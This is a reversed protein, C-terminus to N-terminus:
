CIVYMCTFTNYDMDNFERFLHEGRFPTIKLCSAMAITVAPNFHGGGFEGLSNAMACVVFGM